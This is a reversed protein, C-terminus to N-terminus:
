EFFGCAVGLVSLFAFFGGVMWFTKVVKIENWGLLEFHHHLPAMKFVRKGTLKFSVVQIIVSLTEIIFVIALPILLAEFKGLVGLTGLLGGLALSGTDGMFVQAPNYNYYLFGGCASAVAASIVSLEIQGMMAFIVACGLFSFVSLGSALGDLGDTLNVANSSGVIIFIAIFAYWFGFDHGLIATEGGQVMYAAPIAAVIIQLLMKGRPTLGKNQQQKNKKYDDIFGIAAYLIFVIIAVLSDLSVKQMMVFALIMALVACDVIVLGGMTPTGAKKSHNEPAKEYIYQGAFYKKLLDIYPKGLILTLLLAILGAVYIITM